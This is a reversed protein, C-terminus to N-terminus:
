FVYIMTVIMFCICILSFCHYTMSIHFSIHYVYLLILVTVPPYVMESGNDSHAQEEMHDM